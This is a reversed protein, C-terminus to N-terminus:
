SPGCRTSAADGQQHAIAALFAAEEADSLGEVRLDGPFTPASELIHDRPQEHSTGVLRQHPASQM